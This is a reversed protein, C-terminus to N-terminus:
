PLPAGSGDGRAIRRVLREASEREVVSRFYALGAASWERALADLWTALARKYEARAATDLPRVISPDEPDVVRNASRPPDLEQESLLQVAHVEHGSAALERAVALTEREDGLFDSVLVVRGAFRGAARLVPALPTTGRPVVRDIAAIVEPVVRRRARPRFRAHGDSAVLVGVPDGAAAAIATLGVTVERAVSWKSPGRGPFNMSASADLVIATRLVTREDSLRVYARDTRALLKWDMRRVEDGQRYPRYETFEASSGHMHSRHVGAHPARARRRAPWRVGRLSDLLREYAGAPPTAPTSTVGM